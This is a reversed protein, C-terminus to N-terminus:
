SYFSIGSLFGLAFMRDLHFASHKEESILLLTLAGAKVVGSQTLVTSSTGALAILYSLSIFPM